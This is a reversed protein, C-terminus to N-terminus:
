ESHCLYKNWVSGLFGGGDFGLTLVEVYNTETLGGLAIVKTAREKKLFEKLEERDFNSRYGEKSISDFIPSLFCYEVKGEIELVEEFSHCSVSTSFKFTQFNSLKNKKLHVGKLEFKEVLEFCSHLVTKRKTEESLELFLKTVEEENWSPKRLHFLDWNGSSIENNIISAEDELKTPYSFLIRM